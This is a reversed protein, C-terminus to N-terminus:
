SQYDAFDKWELPGEFGQQCFSFVWLLEWEPLKRLAKFSKRRNKGWFGGV